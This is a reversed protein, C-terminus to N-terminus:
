RGAAGAVFALPATGLGPTRKPIEARITVDLRAASDYNGANAELRERTEVQPAAPM